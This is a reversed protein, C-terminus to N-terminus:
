CIVSLNSTSKHSNHPAPMTIQRLCPASKCIIWRIGSGSVTERVVVVMKRSGSNQIPSGPHALVLFTFRFGIQIEQLLLCHTATADAPSYALRCRAWVSLWALVEGSRKRCAPHGEQWRVSLTLASDRKSTGAWRPLEPCLAMLRTNNNCSLPPILTM